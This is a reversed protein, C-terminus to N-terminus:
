LCFMAQLRRKFLDCSFLARFSNMSTQSLSYCSIRQTNGKWGWCLSCKLWVPVKLISSTEHSWCNKSKKVRLIFLNLPLLEPKTQISSNYTSRQPNQLSYKFTRRSKRLWRISLLQITKISLLPLSSHFSLHSMFWTAVSVQSRQWTLRKREKLFAWMLIRKLILSNRSHSKM